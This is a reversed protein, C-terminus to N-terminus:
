FLFKQRPLFKPNQLTTKISCPLKFRDIPSFFSYSSKHINERDELKVRKYM